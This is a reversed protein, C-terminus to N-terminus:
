PLEKRPTRSSAKQPALRPAERTKKDFTRQPTFAQTSTNENEKRSHSNDGDMESLM